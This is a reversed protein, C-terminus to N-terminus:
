KNTFSSGADIYFFSNLQNKEGIITHGLYIGDINEVVDYGTSHNKISGLM